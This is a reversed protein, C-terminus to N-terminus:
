SNKSRRAFEELTAEAKSTAKSLRPCVAWWSTSDCSGSSASMYPKVYPGNEAFCSEVEDVASSPVNQARCFESFSVPYMTESRLFGVPLSKVHALEISLLSGSM